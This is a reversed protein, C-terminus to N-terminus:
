MSVAYQRWAPMVQVLAGPHLEAETAWYRCDARSSKSCCFPLRRDSVVMPITPTPLTPLLTASTACPSPIFTNSFSRGLSSWSPVLRKLGSFSRASSHSMSVKWTGKHLSPLYLVKWRASSANKRKSFRCGTMILVERPSTILVSARSLASSVPCIESAMISTHSFSGSM